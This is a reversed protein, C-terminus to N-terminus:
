KSFSQLLMGLIIELLAQDETEAFSVTVDPRDSVAATQADIWYFVM